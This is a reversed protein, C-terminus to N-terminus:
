LVVRLVLLAMLDVLVRNLSLRFDNKNTMTIHLFFFIQCKLGTDVCLLELPDLLDQTVLSEVPERPDRTEVAELLM